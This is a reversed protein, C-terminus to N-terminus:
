PHARCSSGSCSRLRNLRAALQGRVAAYGPDAHRSDLEFPDQELDYLEREGTSHEAYMYRETRIAEFSPEEILLERGQEIGPRQAVPILSRGDMVLGPNANAVDVITPALDANISLDSVRVGPPIGPGRMQLPVRISEEYIHTKGGPIRHEGHFLGNDTTFMLVTDALEGRARLADVVRKVGEDM